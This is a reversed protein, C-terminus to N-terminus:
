PSMLAFRPRPLSSPHPSNEFAAGAFAPQTPIAFSAERSQSPVTPQQSPTGAAAAWAASRANAKRKGAKKRAPALTSAEQANDPDASVTAPGVAMAALEGELEALALEGELVAESLETTARRAAAKIQNRTQRRRATATPEPHHHPEPGGTM